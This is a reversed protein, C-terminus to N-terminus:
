RVIGRGPSLPVFVKRSYTLAFSTARRWDARERSDVFIADPFRCGSRM